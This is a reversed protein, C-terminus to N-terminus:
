VSWSIEYGNTLNFTAPSCFNPDATRYWIQYTRTDGAMAGGKVSVTPDAGTPYQSSGGSNTKLGLRVITGGVCRIGDGFVTGAGAAQQSTGQFYLASSDPMGSGQLVVTDTSVSAIGSGELKGGSGLSNLCGENQGVTSNNACPCATATGDGLCFPTGPPNPVGGCLFINNVMICGNGQQCISSCFPDALGQVQVNTGLPFGGTNDLLWLRGNTDSLLVPCTVGQILTGCENYPVQAQARGCLCAVVAL